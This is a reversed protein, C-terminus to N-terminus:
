SPRTFRGARNQASVGRLERLWRTTQALERRRRQVDPRAALSALAQRATDNPTSSPTTAAV